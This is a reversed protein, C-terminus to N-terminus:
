DMIVVAAIAGAFIIMVLVILLVSLDRSRPETDPEYVRVKFTTYATIAVIAIFILQLLFLLAAAGFDFFYFLVGLVTLLVAAAGYLPDDKQKKGYKGPHLASYLRISAVPILGFAGINIILLEIIEKGYGRMYGFYGKNMFWCILLAAIGLVGDLIGVAVKRGQSANDATRMAVDDPDPYVPQPVVPKPIVPPSEHWQYGNGEPPANPVPRDQEEQRYRVPKDEENRYRVPMDSNTMPRGCNNCFAADIPM